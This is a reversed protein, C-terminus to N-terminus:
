ETQMWRQVFSIRLFQPFRLFGPITRAMAGPVIGQPTYDHSRSICIKWVFFALKSKVHDRRLKSKSSCPDCLDRSEETVKAVIKQVPTPYVSKHPENKKNVRL